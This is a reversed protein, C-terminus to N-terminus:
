YREFFHIKLLKFLNNLASRTVPTLEGEFGSTELLGRAPIDGLEAATWSEFRTRALCSMLASGSNALGEEALSWETMSFIRLHISLNSVKVLFKEFHTEIKMLFTPVIEPFCGIRKRSSLAKRASSFHLNREWNLKLVDSISNGPSCSM